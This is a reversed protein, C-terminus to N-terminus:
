PSPNTYTAVLTRPEPDIVISHRADGGDSWSLFVHGQQELAAILDRTGGVNTQVTFPTQQAVGEWPITLGSPVTDITYEVTVPLLVRCTRGTRQEADVAVLCLEFSTNDGHDECVFSGTPGITTPLGGFHVHQNHHLNLEWSLSSEPIPVGLYDRASGSFAVVSGPLVRTADAPQDIVVDPLNHDKVTWSFTIAAELGGDTIRVRVSYTGAKMLAGVILGSQPDISLGAPLGSAFFTLEGGEPDQAAIQLQVADGVTGTQSPVATLTPRQNAESAIEFLQADASACRAGLVLPAEVNQRVSLCLDDESIIQLGEDRPFVRFRQGPVDASPLLQAPQDSHDADVTISLALPSSTFRYLDPGANEALWRQAEAGNCPRTEVTLARESSSEDHAISELCADGSRITYLADPTPGPGYGTFVLRSLSSDPPSGGIQLMFLDGSSPDASIQTVYGIGDAFVHSSAVNGQDDFSLFRLQQQSFDSYFLAGRYLPPYRTGAYVAGLLVAAGQGPVDHAYAYLPSVVPEGSADLEACRPLAHYSPQELNLGNGGEYCPWGFNAGAGAREIEEWSNWGVDGVYLLGATPAFAFRFPNRLGLQYIKSRNCDLDRGAFPNDPLGSGTMPDIRLIKGALSDHDLARTCAPQAHEFDCGDGNAVYLAGDPGFAIMGVTHTKEDAPLCDRVYAGRQGCSPHDYDNRTDLQGMNEYTSNTGLLVRASGPRAVDFGSDADAEVRVLRSARAGAADPAAGGSQLQTEPPDYVYLLYVYPSAPFAPHVAIGLLGRDQAANVEASLDIFPPDLLQGGKVLRVTGKKEAIFIRDDPAFAFATGQDLGQAIVRPQFGRDLMTTESTQPALASQSQDTSPEDAPPPPVIPDVSPDPPDAAPPNEVSASPGANQCASVCLACALVWVSSRFRFTGAHVDRRGLLMFVSSLPVM